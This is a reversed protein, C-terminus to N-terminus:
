LESHKRANGRAKDAPYRRATADIKADAAAALDIGTRVMLLHLFVDACEEGLRRRFGAGGRAGDPAPSWALYDLVIRM